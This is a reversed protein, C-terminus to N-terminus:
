LIIDNLVNQIWSLFPKIQPLELKKKLIILKVTKYKHLQIWPIGPVLVEFVFYSKKSLFVTSNKLFFNHFGMCICSIYRMKHQVTQLKRVKKWSKFANIESIIKNINAM